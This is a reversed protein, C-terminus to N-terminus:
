TGVCIMLGWLVSSGEGLIVKTNEVKDEAGFTTRLMLYSAGGNLVVEEDQQSFIMKQPSSIDPSYNFQGRYTQLNDMISEDTSFVRSCFETLNSAIGSQTSSPLPSNYIMFTKGDPRTVDIQVM